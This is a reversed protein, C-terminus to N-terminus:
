LGHVELYQKCSFAFIQKLTSCMQIRVYEKVVSM